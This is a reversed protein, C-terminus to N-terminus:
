RALAQVPHLGAARRAPLFGAALGTGIACALAAPVFWPSLGVRLGAACLPPGTATALVMDVLGGAGTM